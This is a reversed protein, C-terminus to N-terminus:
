FTDKMANLRGQAAYFNAKAMAYAPMEFDLASDAMADWHRSMAAIEDLMSAASAGRRDALAQADTRPSHPVGIPIQPFAM